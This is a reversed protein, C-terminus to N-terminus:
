IKSTKLVRLRDAKADYSLLPILDTYFYKFYSQPNLHFIRIAM